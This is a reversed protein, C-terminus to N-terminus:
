NGIEFYNFKKKYNKNKIVSWFDFIFGNKNLNRKIIKSSNKKIIPNNNLFIICDYKKNYNAVNFKLNSIENNSFLPDDVFIDFNKIKNLIKYFKFISSGRADKTLPEGKFSIGLILINNKKNNNINKIINAALVDVIKENIERGITFITQKNSSLVENLIYPDKTLCPGGVGPSPVPITNRPYNYNSYEITKKASIKYKQCILAIQNSYAFSLDRYTNNILKIIEATEITDVEIIQKSLKTFIKKTKLLCEKDYGAIIQPITELENIANGEITREPAYSIFYDKSIKLNKKKFIPIIKKRTTGVPLTSRFIILTNKKIINSLQISINKVHSLDSVYKKRNNNYRVPTGVTVIYTMFKDNLKELLFFNKNLYKKLYLDIDKEFIHSEGNRLKNITNQNSDYGYVKYGKKALALSLTLGVYGLGIICINKSM